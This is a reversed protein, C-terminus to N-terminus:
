YRRKPKKAKEEEAQQPQAADPLYLPGKKGCAALGGVATLLLTMVVVLLPVRFMDLELIGVIYRSTETSSCATFVLRVAM